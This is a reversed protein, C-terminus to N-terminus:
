VSASRYVEEVKEELQAMRERSVAIFPLHRNRYESSNESQPHDYVGFQCTEEPLAANYPIARYSGGKCNAAWRADSQQDYAGRFQLGEIAAWGYRQYAWLLLKKLWWPLVPRHEDMGIQQIAIYKVPLEDVILSVNRAKEPARLTAPHHLRLHSPKETRHSSQVHSRTKRVRHAMSM